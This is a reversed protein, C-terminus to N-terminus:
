AEVPLTTEFCGGNSIRLARNGLRRAQDDSHTIFVLAKLSSESSNLENLITNEVRLTSQLDLASTPETFIPYIMFEYVDQNSVM